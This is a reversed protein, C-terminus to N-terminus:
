NNSNLIEYKFWEKDGFYEKSYFEEGKLIGESVFYYKGNGCCWYKYNPIINLFSEITEEVMEKIYELDYEKNEDWSHQYDCGVKIIKDGGDFGSIKEYFTIGGHFEIRSLIENDYYEYYIRKGGINDKYGKLWLMEPKNEQPIKSLNIFIYHCWNFNRKSTFTNPFKVIEFDVGKHKGKYIENESKKIKM